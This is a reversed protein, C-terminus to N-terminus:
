EMFDKESTVEHLGIFTLRRKSRDHRRRGWPWFLGRLFGAHFWTVLLAQSIRWGQFHLHCAEEFRWSTQSGWTEKCHYLSILPVHQVCTLDIFAYLIGTAFGWLSWNPFWSGSSPILDSYEISINVTDHIKKLKGSYVYYCSKYGNESEGIVFM